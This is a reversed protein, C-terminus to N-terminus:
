LTRREHNCHCTMTAATRLSDTTTTQHHRMTAAVGLFVCPFGIDHQETMTLDMEQVSWRDPLEELREGHPGVHCPFLVGLLNTLVLVPSTMGPQVHFRVQKTAAKVQNKGQDAQHKGQHAKLM